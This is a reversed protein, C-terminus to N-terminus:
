ELDLIYWEIEQLDLSARRGQAEPAYYEALYDLIRARKPGLDWLGQTEQMWTLMQDWGERTARNQTVLAASHCVTCNARVDEFGPAFKLGTALHVGNEVKDFDEENPQVGSNSVTKVVPKPSLWQQIDSKLPIYLLIGVVLILLLKIASMLVRFSDRLAKDYAEKQQEDMHQHNPM